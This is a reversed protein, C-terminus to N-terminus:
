EILIVFMVVSMRVGHVRQSFSMKDWKTLLVFHM